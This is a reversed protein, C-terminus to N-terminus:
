KGYRSAATKLYDQESMGTATLFKKESESLPSQGQVDKGGATERPVPDPTPTRPLFQGNQGRAPQTTTTQHLAALEQPSSIAYTRGVAWMYAEKAGEVTATLHKPLRDWAEKLAAESPRAGNPLQTAHARLFNHRSLQAETMQHIPAVQAQAEEKAADRAIKRMDLIIDRGRDLDLNGSGDAKYLDYRKAYTAAQEDSITTREDPQAPQQASQQYAQVYPTLQQVQQQLQQIQQRLTAAEASGREAEALKARTEKLETRYHRAVKGVDSSPVLKDGDPVQIANAELAAEVAAEDDLNLPADPKPEPPTEPPPEVREVQTLQAEVVADQESM